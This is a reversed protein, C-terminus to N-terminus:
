CQWLFAAKECPECAFTYAAGGGGFNMSSGGDHGEELQAVFGMPEGCDACDPVEDNQMWGPRGGLQGLVAGPDDAAELADGYEGEAARLEIASVESLVTDLTPAAAAGVLADTAFLFAQNGGEAPDWEECLGPNNQCMFISVLRHPAPLLQALFQMPGTCTACHPWAFDAPVLPLGGTRTALGTGDGSGAYIMLTTM